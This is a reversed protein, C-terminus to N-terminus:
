RALIMLSFGGLARVAFEESMITAIMRPLKAIRASFRKPRLGTAQNTYFWDIIQYGCHNLSRFVTDRTFFHLHGLRDWTPGLANRLLGQAHLDLPVHLIKLDGRGKLKRLFDLYDEVHEIVDIALSVDYTTDTSFFDERFFRLNANKKGECLRIAQPSIDYGDLVCTDPLRKQLNRLIEGAGCGVESVSKPSIHNRGMMKMIQDAKWDSDEAHWGPHRDSYEGSLYINPSDASRTDRQKM